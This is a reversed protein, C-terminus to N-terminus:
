IRIDLIIKCSFLMNVEELTVPNSGDASSGVMNSSSWRREGDKTATEQRKVHQNMIRCYEGTEKSHYPDPVLSM